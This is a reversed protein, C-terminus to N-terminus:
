STECHCEAFLSAVRGHLPSASASPFFDTDETAFLVILDVVLINCFQFPVDGLATLDKGSPDGSVARLVLSGQCYGDLSGTM